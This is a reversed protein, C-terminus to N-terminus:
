DCLIHLFSDPLSVPEPATAVSTIAVRGGPSEQVSCPVGTEIVDCGSLAKKRRRHSFSTPIYSDMVGKYPHLVHLEQKCFQWDWKKYGNLLFKGLMMM